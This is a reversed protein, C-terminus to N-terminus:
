WSRWAILSEADEEANEGGEANRKLGLTRRPARPPSIRKVRLRERTGTGFGDRSSDTVRGEERLWGALFGDGPGRGPAMGGLIRKRSATGLGGLWFYARPVGDRLRGAVSLGEPRLKLGNQAKKRSLFNLHMPGADGRKGRAARKGIWRDSASAQKGSVEGAEGDGM